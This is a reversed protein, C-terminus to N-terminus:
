KLSEVQLHKEEPYIKFLGLMIKFFFFISMGELNVCLEVSDLSIAAATEWFSPCLNMFYKWRGQTM